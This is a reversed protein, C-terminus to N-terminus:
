EISDPPRGWSIPVSSGHAASRYLAMNADGIGFTDNWTMVVLGIRPKYVATNIAGHLFAAFLMSKSIMNAMEKRYIKVEFIIIKAV